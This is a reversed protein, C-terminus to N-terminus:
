PKNRLGGNPGSSAYSTTKLLGGVVSRFFELFVSCQFTGVTVHLRWAAVTLMEICHVFLPWYWKKAQITPRYQNIFRDLLDVGGMGQNYQYLCFTHVRSNMKKERQSYRKVMKTPEINSFNSGLYVVKNDKWQVISVYDDLRHDFFGRKEKEVSKSPRLPCKIIRGERINGLARFNKKHM